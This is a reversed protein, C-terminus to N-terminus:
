EINIKIWPEFVSVRTWRMIHGYYGTKMLREVETGSGSTIGILKWGTKTKKFLGGGSDGAGVIFELPLPTASGM